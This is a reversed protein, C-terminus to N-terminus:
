DAIGISRLGTKMRRISKHVPASTITRRGVSAPLRLRICGRSAEALARGSAMRKPRPKWGNWLFAGYQQDRGVAIVKPVSIAGTARIAELGDAEAQFFSLGASRNAKMFVQRGDSLTLKYADNIDGGFVPTVGRLPAALVENLTM